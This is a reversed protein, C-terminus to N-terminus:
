QDHTARRQGEKQRKMFGAFWGRGLLAKPHTGCAANFDTVSRQITSEEILSNAFEITESPKMPQGAEQRHRAFTTILAEIELAPSSPGPTTSTSKRRIRSRITNLSISFDEKDLGMDQLVEHHIKELTFKAVRPQNRTKADEQAERFRDTILLKAKVERAKLDKKSRITSGKPRGV